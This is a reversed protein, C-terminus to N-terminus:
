SWLNLYDLAFGLKSREIPETCIATLVRGVGYEENTDFFRYCEVANKALLFARFELNYSDPVGLIITTHVEQGIREIAGMRMSSVVHAVQAAIRGKPQVITKTDTNPLTIMRVPMDRTFEYNLPNQVTEAVIVYIRKEENMIKVTYAAFLRALTPCCEARSEAEGM